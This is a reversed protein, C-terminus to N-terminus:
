NEISILWYKEAELAMCFSQYGMISWHEKRQHHSHNPKKTIEKVKKALRKSIWLSKMNQHQM